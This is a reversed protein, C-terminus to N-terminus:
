VPKNLLVDRVKNAQNDRLEKSVNSNGFNLLVKRDGSFRPIIHIHLHPIEQGAASGVNAVLNYGDSGFVDNVVSAVQLALSMAEMVDDATDETIETVHRKPMVLPNNELSMIAMAKEKEIIRSAEARGNAIQCFICEGAEHEHASHLNDLNHRREM